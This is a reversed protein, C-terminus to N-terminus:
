RVRVVESLAPWHKCWRWRPRCGTVRQQLRALGEVLELEAQVLAEDFLEVGRLELAAVRAASAFGHLAGGPRDDGRLHRADNAEAAVLQHGRNGILDEA